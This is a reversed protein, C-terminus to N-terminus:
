PKPNLTGVANVWVRFGLGRVRPGLGWVRIGFGLGLVRFASGKVRFGLGLIRFGQVRVRFGWVGLDRCAMSSRRRIGAEADSSLAPLRYDGKLLYFIASPKM